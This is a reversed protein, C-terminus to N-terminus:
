TSEIIFLVMATLVCPKFFYKPLIFARSPM